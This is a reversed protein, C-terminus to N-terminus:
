KQLDLIDEILKLFVLLYAQTRKKKYTKFNEGGGKAVKSIIARFSVLITGPSWSSFWPFGQNLGYLNNM